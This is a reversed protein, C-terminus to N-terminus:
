RKIRGEAQAAVIDKDISRYEEDRGRYKGRRADEYFRKVEDITYTKKEPTGSSSPRNGSPQTRGQPARTSAGKEAKWGTFFAIARAANLSNRADNLLAQRTVGTYPDITQLWEVFKPNINIAEWDPVKDLMERFFGQESLNMQSHELQEVRSNLEQPVQPPVQLNKTAERVRHAILQEVGRAIEPYDDMLQNIETPQDVPQQKAQASIEEIKRNLEENRQQLARLQDLARGMEANYKGQLVNFRHEWDPGSERKPPSQVEEVVNVAQEIEQPDTDTPETKGIQAKAKAEASEMQKQVVQPIAM